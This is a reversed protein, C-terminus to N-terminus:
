RTTRGKRARLNRRTPLATYCERVWRLPTRVLSVVMSYRRTILIIPFHGVPGFHRKLINCYRRGIRRARYDKADILSKGCGSGLGLGM